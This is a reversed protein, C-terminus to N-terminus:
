QNLGWQRSDKDFKVGSHSGEAGNFYVDKNSCASIILAGAIIFLGIVSLWINQDAKLTRVNDKLYRLSLYKRMDFQGDTNEVEQKFFPIKFAFYAELTSLLVLAVGIVWVSQLVENPDDSAVYHAEFFFSFAFSSFLIAVITLAQIVGNAMGINETGVISKIISYKAPSYVASQAALILTLVFSTAFMGTMYSLLIGASIVVAALSSYRIVKTRSFKDNIFASPSFLFIFPLLIMANILATLVVLSEGSFSKLLVNQITIKHALDVGANIFAIALYPVFGAYKLLKM